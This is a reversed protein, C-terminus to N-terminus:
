GRPSSRICELCMQASEPPLTMRSTWCTEEEEGDGVAIKFLNRESEVFGSFLGIFCVFISISYISVYLPPYNSVISLYIKCSM